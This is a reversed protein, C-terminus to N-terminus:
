TLFALLVKRTAPTTSSYNPLTELAGLPNRIEVKRPSTNYIYTVLFDGNNHGAGSYSSLRIADGLQLADNTEVTYVGAVGLPDPAISKASITVAEDFRFTFSYLGNAQTITFSRIQVDSNLVIVGAVSKLGLNLQTTVLHKVEITKLTSQINDGFTLGSELASLIQNFNQNTFDLYPEIDALLKAPIQGKDFSKPVNLKTM